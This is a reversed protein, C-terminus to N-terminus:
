MNKRCKMRIEKMIEDSEEEGFEDVDIDLYQDQTFGYCNKINWNFKECHKHYIVTNHVTPAAGPIYMMKDLPLGFTNILHNAILNMKHIHRFALGETYNRFIVHTKNETTLYHNILKAAEFPSTGLVIEDPGAWATEPIFLGDKLSVPLNMDPVGEEFEEVTKM